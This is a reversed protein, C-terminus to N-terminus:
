ENGGKSGVSGALVNAVMEPTADMPLTEILPSCPAWLDGGMPIRRLVVGPLGLAAALHMSGSDHGVWFRCAALKRAFEVVSDSKSLEIHVPLVIPAPISFPSCNDPYGFLVADVMIMPLLRAWKERAWTKAKVGSTPCLAVRESPVTGPFRICPAGSGAKIGLASLGKRFFEYAPMGAEPRSGSHILQGKTATEFSTEYGRQNSIFTLVIDAAAIESALVVSIEPGAGRWLPCIPCRTAAGTAVALEGYRSVLVIEADPQAARIDTIAPLMLVLSGLGGDQVIM